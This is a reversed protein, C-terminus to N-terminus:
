ICPCSLLSCLHGVQVIAGGSGHDPDPAPRYENVYGGDALYYHYLSGDKTGYILFDGTLAMCTIEVDEKEPFHRTPEPDTADIPHVLVKGESMVAAFRQNLQMAKVSGIYEQESVLSTDGVAAAKYFWVHNNMGVGVHHPGVAVFGPELAIPIKVPPLPVPGSADGPVRAAGAAAAAGGPGTFAIGAALAAAQLAAAHTLCCM